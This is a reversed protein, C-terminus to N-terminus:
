LLYVCFHSATPVSASVSVIVLVALAVLLSSLNGPAKPPLTAKCLESRFELVTLLVM